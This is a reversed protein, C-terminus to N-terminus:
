EVYYFCFSCQWIRKIHDCNSQYRFWVFFSLSSCFLKEWLYQHLFVWYFVQLGFELVCWLSQGGHDLLSWRLSAPITWCALIRWRLGSYLCVSLFSGCSWRMLHQFFMQCFRVGRWSLLRLSTLTVLFMGSCLSLLLCYASLWCWTLQISVWLLEVLIMILVLSGMSEM